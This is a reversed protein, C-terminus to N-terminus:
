RAGSGGLRQLARPLEGFGDIVADAGLESVPARPYGYSVAVVPIGASRAVKVDNSSDGVMAARGGGLKEIVWALHRGDPKRVPLTDGGAVASFLPALGILELVRRTVKEPKNTCVGLAVGRAALDALTEPVGKYLCAPSAAEEYYYEVFRTYLEAVTADSPEEGSGTLRLVARLLNQAGDGVLGRIQEESVPSRGIEALTRNVVRAIDAASDILTGDLDFVVCDFPLPSLPM